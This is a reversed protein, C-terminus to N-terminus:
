EAAKLGADSNELRGPPLVIKATTGVGPKSDYILFGGHLELIAKALSVGLGAGEYQRSLSDDIQRFPELILVMQEHTMGIGTDHVRIEMCGNDAFAVSITVAGEHTFKVANSVLNDVCRKILLYDATILCNGIDTDCVVSISKQAAAETHKVTVSQLLQHLDIQTESLKTRGAELNAMELVDNIVRLLQEGSFHIDNIFELDHEDASGKLNEALFASFGIIANLPTRLEHGMSALLVSKAKSAQEAEIKAAVFETRLAAERLVFQVRFGLLPWVIPKTLFDTAGADFGRNISETDELATVLVAPIHSIEPTARVAECVQFGDLGPMMVDLLLLDPRLQKAMELGTDGRDAEEVVYGAAELAARTLMRQGADDDVVLITQMDGPRDM